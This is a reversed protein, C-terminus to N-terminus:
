FQVGVRASVEHLTSLASHTPLDYYGYDVSVRLHRTAWYNAGLTVSTVEVDGSPTKSDDTGGRSSGRYDLGLQDVRAM